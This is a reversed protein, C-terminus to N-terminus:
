RKERIVNMRADGHNPYNHNDRQSFDDSYSDQYHAHHCLCGNLLGSIVM